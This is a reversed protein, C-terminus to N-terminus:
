PDLLVKNAIFGEAYKVRCEVGRLRMLSLFTEGNWWDRPTPFETLAVTDTVKSSSYPFRRLIKM